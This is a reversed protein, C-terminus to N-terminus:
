KNPDQLERFDREDLLWRLEELLTGGQHCGRRTPGSGRGERCTASHWRWWGKQTTQSDFGACLESCERSQHLLGGVPGAAFASFRGGRAPRYLLLRPLLLFLKWVRAAGVPNNRDRAQGFESLAFRMVCTSIEDRVNQCFEAELDVNDLGKCHQGQQPM